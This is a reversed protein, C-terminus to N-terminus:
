NNRTLYLFFSCDNGGFIVIMEEGFIDAPKPATPMYKCKCPHTLLQMIQSFCSFLWIHWRNDYYVYM